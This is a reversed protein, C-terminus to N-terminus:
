KEIFKISINYMYDHFEKMPADFDDAMLSRLGKLEGAKILNADKAEQTLHIVLHQVQCKSSNPLKEILKLLVDNEM